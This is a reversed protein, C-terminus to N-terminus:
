RPAAPRGLGLHERLTTGEYESRFLGRRVLEPVLQDCITTLAGPAYAMQLNFGDCGGSTFWQEMEDAVQEATGVTVSHGMSKAAVRLLDRLRYRKEVALEHYLEFRSRNGTIEEPSPFREVPIPEDLDLDALEINALDSRLSRMGVDIGVLNALEEALEKAGQETDGIIPMMGPLVKAGAIGRGAAALQDQFARYFTQAHELDPQATFVVEAHRAAFATGAPSSGAQVLVPWGQPSRPMHAPGRVHFYTGHHDIRHVRDPRVWIGAERDNVVANDEWSDWLETVVELYEAAVAYREDHPPLEIGFNEQGGTSTVINWGARGGSLHDLSMLYRALNFPETFTTSITGILGIKDTVAALASLLTVPELEILRPANRAYSELGLSDSVFVADLKAREAQQVLDTMFKLSLLEGSRSGPRRWAGAHYGAGALFVNLSMHRPATGATV